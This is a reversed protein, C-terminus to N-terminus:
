IAQDRLADLYPSAVDVASGREAPGSRWGSAILSSFLDFGARAATGFALCTAAGEPGSAVGALCTGRAFTAPRCGCDRTTLGAARGDFSAGGAFTV